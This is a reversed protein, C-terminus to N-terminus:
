VKLIAKDYLTILKNTFSNITAHGYAYISAHGKDQLTGDTIRVIANDYCEANSHTTLQSRNRAIGYGNKITARSNDLLEVKCNSNLVLASTSGHLVVHANGLVYVNRAFNLHISDTSNGIIVIGNRSDENYYFGAANIEDKFDPYFDNFAQIVQLPVETIMGHWYKFWAGCMQQITNTGKFDCQSDMCNGSQALIDICLKKFRLSKEVEPDIM